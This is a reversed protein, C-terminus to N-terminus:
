EIESGDPRHIHIQGTDDRWVRYGKQKWRNHRGCGPAGNGPDTRGGKAHDHLHDTECKSAPVWCGLWFCERGAIRVADRALGTFKRATGMDIVVGKADIVVRRIKNVVANAFAETPDLPLGDITECRFTDPDSPQPVGGAFRRLMEEWADSSWVINHVFRSPAMGAKNAVADAFIQRLADARRQSDTRSLDSTCAADGLRARAEAWDADFLVQVYADLVEKMATGDGSTFIGALDWSEDFHNQVLQANRNEFTRDREPEAGDEDTIRQWQLVRERFRPFSLRRAGKLFRRQRKHMQKRVRKNAWVRALLLVQDTGLKGARYTDAILALDGFMRRCRDRGTAEAGSLKNVHRDMVKASSHGDRYHMGEAESAALLDISLAHARRKIKEARTMAEALKKSDGIDVGRLRAFEADLDTCIQTTPTSVALAM